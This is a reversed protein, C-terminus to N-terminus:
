PTPSQRSRSEDPQSEERSETAGDPADPTSPPDAFPDEGAPPDAFPDDGTGFGEDLISDLEDDLPEQYPAESTEADDILSRRNQLYIERATVYEDGPLGELTQLRDEFRYRTEVLGLAGLPVTISANSVYFLPNTVISVPWAVASRTTSPGFFPLVLYPGERVNWTALTQGFDENHEELGLHQAVDFLGGVGATSNVVFRGTDSASQQFKGQLAGNVITEVSGLNDFFHGVSRRVPRNTVFGYTNAAPRLAANDIVRNFQYVPRNIAKLPDNEEPPPPEKPATICGALGITLMAIVGISSVSRKSM